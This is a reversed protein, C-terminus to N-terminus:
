TGDIASATEWANDLAETLWWEWFLLSKTKDFEFPEHLKSTLVDVALKDPSDLLAFAYFAFMSADWGHVIDTSSDEMKQSLSPVNGLSASLASYASNAACWVSYPMDYAIAGLAHYGEDLMGGAQLYTSKRTLFEESASLLRYPLDTGFTPDNRLIHPMRTDWTGLVRRAGINMLRIYCRYGVSMKSQVFDAMASLDVEIYPLVFIRPDLLRFLDYREGQTLSHSSKQRINEVYNLRLHDVNAPLSCM